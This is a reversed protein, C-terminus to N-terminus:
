HRFNTIQVEQQSYPLMADNTLAEYIEAKENEPTSNQGLLSALVEKATKVFSPWEKKIFTNIDPFNAYFDNARITHTAQWEYYAGAMEKAPKKVLRHVMRNDSALHSQPM